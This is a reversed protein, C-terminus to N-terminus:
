RRELAWLGIGIADIANHSKTKTLGAGDVIEREMETLKSLTYENDVAKPRSGKWVHPKIFLTECFPALAAGAVGAIVAVDILDNPDGKWRRQQYVQPVEVIGQNPKHAELLQFLGYHLERITPASLLGVDLLISNRFVAVGLVRGPDVAILIGEV